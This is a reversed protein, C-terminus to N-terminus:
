ENIVRVGGSTKFAWLLIMLDDPLRHLEADEKYSEENRIVAAMGAIQTQPDEPEPEPHQNFHTTHPGPDFQDGADIWDRYDLVTPNMM